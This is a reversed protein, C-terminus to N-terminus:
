EYKVKKLQEMIETQLKESEAFYSQLKTTYATMRNVFEEQSLEVYEIKVDFYQGAALSYKKAKIEDYTVTVSFDEVAEKKLFTDVIKDIEFDRLRRKQNNGEKYEEGLKSADILVVKETKKSNDFFLVSVNTGTNAFVNAPMSVCGYVIKEDVIHKLITKEVGSKATIFGTPIVIAGKGNAKLSNIVHQIFCTYIAMSEKKKPPVSPVGAWFRAPMAAIKERTDSFDMKFPPNSVVYDFQRLAQGDDSKHYPAVLTDGQIAHDLSSVLGNLILNLKLM